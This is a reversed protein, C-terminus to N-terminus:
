IKWLLFCATFLKDLILSTLQSTWLWVAFSLLWPVESLNSWRQAGTQEEISLVWTVSNSHSNFVFTKLHHEALSFYEPQLLQKQWSTENFDGLLRMLFLLCLTDQGLGGLLSIVPPPIQVWTWAARSSGCKLVVTDELEWGLIWLRFHSNVSVSLFFTHSRM